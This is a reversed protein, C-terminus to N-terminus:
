TVIRTKNKTGLVKVTEISSCEATMHKNASYKKYRDFYMINISIIYVVFTNYYNCLYCLFNSIFANGSTIKRNNNKYINYSGVKRHNINKECVM